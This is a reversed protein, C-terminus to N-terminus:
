LLLNKRVPKRRWEAYDRLVSVCQHPNEWAWPVDFSEDTEDESQVPPAATSPFDLGAEICKSWLLM